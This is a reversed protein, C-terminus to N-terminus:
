VTVCSQCTWVLSRVKFFRDAVNECKRHFWNSCRSCQILEWQRRKEKKEVEEEAMLMKRDAAKGIVEHRYTTLRCSCYLDVSILPVRQRGSGRIGSTPFSTIFRERLCQKLHERIKKHDFSVTRPDTGFALSTLFAIAFVGCDNGNKQKQCPILALQLASDTSHAISAISEIALAQTESFGISDYVAVASNDTDQFGHAVAFWHKAGNYIVQMWKQPHHTSEMLAVSFTSSPM